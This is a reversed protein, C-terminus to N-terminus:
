KYAEGKSKICYVVINEYNCCLTFNQCRCYNSPLSKGIIAHQLTTVTATSNQSHHYNLLLCHVHDLNESLCFSASMSTEVVVMFWSTKHVAASLLIKAM